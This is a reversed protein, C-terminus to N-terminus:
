SDAWQRRGEREFDGALIAAASARHQCEQESPQQWERQQAAKTQITPLYAQRYFEAVADYLEPGRRGFVWPLAHNLDMLEFEDGVPRRYHGSEFPTFFSVMPFSIAKDRCFESIRDVDASDHWPLIMFQACVEIGIRHCSRIASAIEEVTQRKGLRELDTDSVCEVGVVLQTLGNLKLERLVDANRLIAPVSAYALVGANWDFNALLGAISPALDSELLNDECFYLYSAGAAQASILEKRIHEIPRELLKGETLRWCTCFPCMRSCGLSTVVGFAKDMWGVHGLVPVTGSSEWFRTRPDPSRGTSCVMLPYLSNAGTRGEGHESILASLKMAEASSFPGSFVANIGLGSFDSPYLTAHVGGAFVFVDSGRISRVMDAIAKMWLYQSTYGTIGVAVTGRDEIMEAVSALAISARDDLSFDRALETRSLDLIRCPVPALAAAVHELEPAGVYASKTGGIARSSPPPKVLLIHSSETLM